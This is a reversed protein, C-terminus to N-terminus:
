AKDAAGKLEVGAAKEQLTVVKTFDSDAGLTDETHQWIDAVM